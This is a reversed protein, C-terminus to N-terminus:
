WRLPGEDVANQLVPAADACCGSASRPRGDCCPVPLPDLDRDHVPPRSQRSGLGNIPRMGIWALRVAGM